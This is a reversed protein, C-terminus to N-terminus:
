IPAEAKASAEWERMAPMALIRQTYAQAVAPLHVGYTEFRTAVPAYFADAITFHGFLFGSSKGYRNLVSQWIAVVRAIQAQVADDLPPTPHRMEKVRRRLWDCHEACYWQDLALACKVEWVPTSALHAWMTQMLRRETWHIRLLRQVNEEVSYGIRAAQAYTAVGALEPIGIPKTMFVIAIASNVL